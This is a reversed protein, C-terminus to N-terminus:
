LEIDLEKAYKKAWESGSLKEVENGKRNRKIITMDDVSHKGREIIYEMSGKIEKVSYLKDGFHFGQVEFQKTNFM